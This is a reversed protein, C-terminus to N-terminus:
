LATKDDAADGTEHRSLGGAVFRKVSSTSQGGILREAKWGKGAKHYMVLQPIKRGEILQRGLEREEDLDVQAYVVDQLVGEQAVAPMVNKKMQVCAPCWEAGVLVVIPTNNESAVERAETYSLADPTAGLSGVQVVMALALSLM